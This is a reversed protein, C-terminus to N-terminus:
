LTKNWLCDMPYVSNHRPRPPRNGRGPRFASELVTMIM